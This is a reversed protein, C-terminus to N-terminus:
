KARPWIYTSAYCGITTSSTLHLTARSTCDLTATSTSSDRTCYHQFDVRPLAAERESLGGAAIDAFSLRECPREPCHFVLGKRVISPLLDQLM